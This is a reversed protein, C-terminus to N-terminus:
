DAGNWEQPADSMGARIRQGILEKRLAPIDIVPGRGFGSCDPHYKITGDDILLFPYAACTYFRADHVRCLNTVPDLLPCAEDIVFYPHTRGTGEEEEVRDIVLNSFRPDRKARDYEIWTLNVRWSTRCCMGCMLCEWRMKGELDRWEREVIGRDDARYGRTLGSGDRVPVCREVM